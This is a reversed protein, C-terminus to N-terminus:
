TMALASKTKAVFCDGFHLSKRMDRPSQKALTRRAIITKKKM